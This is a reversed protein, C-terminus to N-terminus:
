ASRGEDGTLACEVGEDDNGDPRVCPTCRPFLAGAALLLKNRNDARDFYIDAPAENLRRSPLFTSASSLPHRNAQCYIM